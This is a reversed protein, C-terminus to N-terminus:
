ALYFQAVKPMLKNLKQWRPLQIESKHGVAYIRNDKILLAGNKIPNGGNGDILTGNHILTYSM